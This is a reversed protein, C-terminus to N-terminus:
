PVVLLYERISAGRDCIRTSPLLAEAIFTPNTIRDRRNDLFEAPGCCVVEHPYAFLRERRLSAPHPEFRARLEGAINFTVLAHRPSGGTIAVIQGDIYEHKSDPERDLRLYEDPM